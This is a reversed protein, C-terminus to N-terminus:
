KISAPLKAAAQVKTEQAKLKSVNVKKAAKSAKPATAAAAVAAKAPKTTTTAIATTATTAPAAPAQAFAIAGLTSILLATITKKM